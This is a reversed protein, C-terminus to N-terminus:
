KYGKPPNKKKTKIQKKNFSGLFENSILEGDNLVFRFNSTISGEICPAIFEWYHLPELFVSHFSNGCWSNYFYEIDRWKRKYFVQRKINLRSDQADISVITDTNNILYIKFGQKENNIKCISDKVALLNFHNGLNYLEFEKNLNKPYNKSSYYGGAALTDEFKTGARYDVILKYDVNFCESQAIVKFSTIYLILAFTLNIKMTAHIEASM